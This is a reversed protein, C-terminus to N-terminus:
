SERRFLFLLGVDLGVRPLVLLLLILGWTFYNFADNLICKGESRESFELAWLLMCWQFAASHSAVTPPRKIVDNGVWGEHM